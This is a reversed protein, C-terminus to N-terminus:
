SAKMKTSEEENEPTAIPVHTPHLMVMCLLINTPIGVGSVKGYFSNKKMTVTDM